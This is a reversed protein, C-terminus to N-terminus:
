KRERVSWDYLPNKSMEELLLFCKAEMRPIHFPGKFHNGKVLNSVSGDRRLYGFWEGYKKDPFHRYAWKKAKDYWKEFYKDGTLYYALLNAYIMECMPWWYKMEWEIPAAPKGDIDLFSYLGGYKKDWGREQSWKLVPLIREALAKDKRYRAEELIFWATEIAHGPNLTRGAPTDWLSGDERVTEMLAQRDPKIFYRFLEDIQKDIKRTWKETDGTIERLVQYINIVIMTMSHGRLRIYDPNIKPETKDAYYEMTEVAKLADELAGKDGSAKAYEALGIAAFGEAFVYRRMIIPEGDGSLRFYYRGDSKRRCKTRLFDACAKAAKLWREDKDINNYVFSYTWATRGQFWGGKEDSLHSGDRDLYDNIGGRKLDIGNNYWFPLINETLDKKYFCAQKKWKNGM